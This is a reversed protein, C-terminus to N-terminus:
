MGKRAKLVREAVGQAILYGFGHRELRRILEPVRVGLDLATQLLNWDHRACAELLAARRTQETSLQFTKLYLLEGDDRTLCEGIHNTQTADLETVFRELLMKKGRIRYLKERRLPRGFLGSLMYKETFDAWQDRVKQLECLLESFNQVKAFQTELQRASDEGDGQLDPVAPYWCAYQMVLDGYLDELLTRHLVAYDQASPVVFASALEDAVYVLMGVQGRHLEFTRLAEEFRSLSRGVVGSEQRFGLGVRHFERSLEAWKIRPPKFHLALLGELALHLPLFRLRSSTQRKYLKPLVPMLCWDDPQSRQGQAQGRVQGRIQGGLASCLGREDGWDFVFAHPMFASYTTTKDAQVSSHESSHEARVHQRDIGLRLDHCPRERLLPVLRFAGCVQTPAIRLGGLHLAQEDIQNSQNSQNGQDIQNPTNM